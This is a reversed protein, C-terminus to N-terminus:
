ALGIKSAMQRHHKQWEKMARELERASETVRVHHVTNGEFQQDLEKMHTRVHERSQEMVSGQTRALAKQQESLLLMLQDHEQEMKQLETRIQDRQRRADETRFRSGQTRAMEHATQLIRDATQTCARYHERQQDTAQIQKNEPTGAQPAQTGAGQAAATM